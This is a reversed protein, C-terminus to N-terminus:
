GWFHGNEFDIELELMIDTFIELFIIKVSPTTPFYITILMLSINMIFVAIGQFGRYTGDMYGNFSDAFSDWLEFFSGGLSTFTEFIFKGMESYAKDKFIDFAKDFDFLDRISAVLKNSLM